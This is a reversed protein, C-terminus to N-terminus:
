TMRQACVLVCAPVPMRVKEYHTPDDGAHLISICVEGNKYVARDCLDLRM